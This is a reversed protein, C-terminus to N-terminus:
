DGPWYVGGRVIAKLVTIEAEARRKQNTRQEEQAKERMLREKLRAELETPTEIEDEFVLDLDDEARLPMRRHKM